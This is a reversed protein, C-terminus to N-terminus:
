KIAASAAYEILYKSQRDTSGSAGADYIMELDTVAATKGYFLAGFNEAGVEAASGGDNPEGPKNWLPSAGPLATGDLFSWNDGPLLGGAAQLVGIWAGNTGTAAGGDPLDTSTYAQKVFTMRADTSPSALIGGATTAAANAEDWTIAAAPTVLEYYKGATADLVIVRADKVFRDGVDAGAASLIDGTKAFGVPTPDAPNPTPAPAPAPVPTPASEPSDSGGGCATLGIALAVAAGRRHWPRRGGIARPSTPVATPQPAPIEADIHANDPCAASPRLDAQIKCLM